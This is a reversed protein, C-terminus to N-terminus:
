QVGDGDRLVIWRTDEYITRWRNLQLRRAVPSAPPLFACHIGYRAFIEAYDGSDETRRHELLFELPYPDQRSDVFVLRSPVFWILYGGDDYRNYLREPCGAAASIAGPSLPDWQLRKLPLKWAYAVGCGALVLFAVLLSLNLVPHERRVSRASERGANGMALLQSIAPVALLLFLPINRGFRLSAPVLVLAAAVLPLSTHTWLQNVRRVSLGALLSALIWFPLDEPALLQASRFETIGLAAGRGVGEFVATWLKIGLPNVLTVAASLMLVALLSPWRTRDQVLLAASAVALVVLGVIFGGHLNAWLLFIMPLWRLQSRLVCAVVVPLLLLTVLQPRLTWETAFAPLALGALLVRWKTDGAMLSWAVAWSLTALVAGTLTLLPLGGLSYLGYFALQTLWEHNRWTSGQATFSFTDTFLPSHIKWMEQGVRLHWWSDNQAPMLCAAALITLFLLAVALRDFTFRALM